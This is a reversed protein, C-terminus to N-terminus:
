KCLYFSKRIIEELQYVSEVDRPNSKINSSKMAHKAIEDVNFTMKNLKHRTDDIIGSFELLKEIWIAIGEADPQYLGLLEAIEEFLGPCASQNYRIVEPMVLAVAMGHHMGTYAGLPHAIGHAISLGTRPYLLRSTFATNQLCELAEYDREFIAQEMYKGLSLLSGRTQIRVLSNSTRATHVEITHILTDLSTAAIFKKELSLISDPDLIVASPIFFEREIANKKPISTDSVIAYPSSEAGTGCTTPVCIFFPFKEEVKKSAYCEDLSYRNKGLIGILKGADIASGGGVAILSDAKHSIYAEAGDKVSEESPDTTFNSWFFSNYKSVIKYFDDFFKTGKVKSDVVVFPNKKNSNGLIKDIAQISGRGNVVIDPTKMRWFEM